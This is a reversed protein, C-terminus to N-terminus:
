RIRKFKNATKSRGSSMLIQRHPTASSTVKELPNHSHGTLMTQTHARKAPFGDTTSNRRAIRLKELPTPFQMKTPRSDTNDTQPTGRRRVGSSVSNPTLVLGTGATAATTTTVTTTTPAKTPTGQFPFKNLHTSEAMISSDTSSHSVTNNMRRRLDRHPPTQSSSGPNKNRLTSNKRLKTVFQEEDDMYDLTLDVTPPPQFGAGRSASDTARAGKKYFFNNTPAEQRQSELERVRQKLKPIADLEQKAQHLLQQQRAVKERLKVCHSQYYQVQSLLGNTQFQSVSCVTELIDSVPEFFLGVDRPLTRKDVLKIVSVDNTCCVPCRRNSTLHKSCLTHACSTLSLPDQPSSRQHCVHCFVFPQGFLQESSM